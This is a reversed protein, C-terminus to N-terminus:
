YSTLRPFPSGSQATATGESLIRNMEDIVPQLAAPIATDETHVTKGQFTITYQIFDAGGRRSTYNGELSPFNNQRFLNGIRVMETRNFSIETNVRRGSIIAAGNDFIVVRDSMGAIGGTRQYDVFVTPPVQGPSPSTKLGLCGSLLVATIICLSFFALRIRIHVV